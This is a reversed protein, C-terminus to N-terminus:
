VNFRFYGIHIHEYQTCQIPNIESTWQDDEYTVPCSRGQFQIRHSSRYFYVEDLLNLGDIVFGDLIWEVTLNSAM